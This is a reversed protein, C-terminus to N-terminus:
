FNYRIMCQTRIYFISNQTAIFDKQIQIQIQIDGIVNLWHFPNM